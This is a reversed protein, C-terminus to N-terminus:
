GATWALVYGAEDVVTRVADESLPGESTVTVASAGDRVLSVRVDTVGPLTSLERTVSGVCHGCTMGKVAYTRITM